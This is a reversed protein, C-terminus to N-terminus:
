VILQRMPTKQANKEINSNALLKAAQIVESFNNFNFLGSGPANMQANVQIDSNM